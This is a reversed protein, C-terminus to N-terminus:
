ISVLSRPSLGVYKRGERTIVKYHIGTLESYASGYVKGYVVSLPEGYTDVLAAVSDGPNFIRISKDAESLKHFHDLASYEEHTPTDETVPPVYKRVNHRDMSHEAGNEALVYFGADSRYRMNIGRVIKYANNIKVLIQVDDGIKGTDNSAERIKQFDRVAQFSANM